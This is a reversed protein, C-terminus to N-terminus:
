FKEPAFKSYQIFYKCCQKSKEAGGWHSPTRPIKGGKDGRPVVRLTIWVYVDGKNFLSSFGINQDNNEGKRLLM